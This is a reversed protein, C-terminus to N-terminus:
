GAKRNEKQEETFIEKETVVPVFTGTQWEIKWEGPSGNRVRLLEVNWRPHGVGPLGDEPESPLPTIKWRAVSATTALKKPNKRLIFGTVRSKEVVLQLRRSETFGLDDVEAVVAALASCKLAEEMAWLIERQRSLCVFVIRDPEIGFAKLAPPYLVPSTCIWLCIGGNQMLVNLLGSIFGETAAEHEPKETLFEHLTGTPFVSNPFSPEIQELGKFRVCGPLPVKFGEWQLINKQLASIIDKKNALM